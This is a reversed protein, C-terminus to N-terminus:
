GKVIPLGRYKGAFYRREVDESERGAFDHISRMVSAGYMDREMIWIQDRRLIKADMLHTDHTTFILQTPMEAQTHKKVLEAVILPHLSNDLEDVSLVRQDHSEVDRVFWPLWFGILNKTGESQEAIALKHKGFATAHTLYMVNKKYKKDNSILKTYNKIFPNDALKEELSEVSVESIPIDVEQLFESLHQSYFNEGVKMDDAILEEASNIWHGTGSLMTSVGERIWGYPNKLVTTEEDSNAVAQSIFLMKPPTIKVWTKYVAEDVGIDDFHYSESDGIFNRTYIIAEEGQPFYRLEEKIVRDKTAHLIFQYRMEHAIFNVEFESPRSLCDEDFAFPEIPLRLSNNDASRRAISTIVAIARLLNSKGSANPGYIVATKLLDPFGKEKLQPAFTNGGKRIRPAAVLSFVQKQRFSRFNSVSFEILM